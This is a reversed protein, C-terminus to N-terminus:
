TDFKKESHMADVLTTKPAKASTEGPLVRATDWQTFYCVFSVISVDGFPFLDVTNLTNYNSWQRSRSVRAYGRTSDM